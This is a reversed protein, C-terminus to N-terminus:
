CGKRPRPGTTAGAVVLRDGVWTPRSLRTREPTGHELVLDLTRNALDLVYLRNGAAIALRTEDASWAFGRVEEPGEDGPRTPVTVLAATGDLGRLAVGERTSWAAWGGRPSFGLGRVATAEDLRVPPRPPSALAGDLDLLYVGQYTAGADTRVARRYHLLLQDRRRDPSWAAQYLGVAPLDLKTVRREREALVFLGDTHGVLLEDRTGAAGVSPVAPGVAFDLAGAVRLLEEAREGGQLAVRTLVGSQLNTEPDLDCALVRLAQGDSTWEVGFPHREASSREVVQYSLPEGPAPLRELDLLALVRRVIPVYGPRPAPTERLWVAVRRSDPHWLLTTPTHAGLGPVSVEETRGDRVVLLVDSRPVLLTRGDPSPVYADVVGPEKMPDRVYSSLVRPAPRTSAVFATSCEVLEVEEPEFWGFGPDQGRAAGGLLLSALLVGMATRPSSM